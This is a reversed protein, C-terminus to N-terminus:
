YVGGIRLVEFFENRSIFGRGDHDMAEFVRDVEDSSEVAVGLEQWAQRFESASIVGDGNLDLECFLAEM